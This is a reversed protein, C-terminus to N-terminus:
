RRRKAGQVMARQYAIPALSILDIVKADPGILARRKDAKVAALIERAAKKATTMAIKDFDKAIDRGGALPATSMDMRMNRAINTRIGGPHVTTASVPAGEIELEM